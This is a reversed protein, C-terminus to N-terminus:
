RATWWTLTIGGFSHTAPGAAYEKSLTVVRYEIGVRAVRVGVGREWNGVRPRHDRRLSLRFTSGDLFLDRGVAEGNAGVFAFASFNHPTADVLWPHDLDFGVRLRGGAGAATRLTGLTAHATPVLDTWGAGAGPPALYWAQTFQVAMDPETPLQYKWGLLVREPSFDRHFGNQILEALSAPGTVGVTLALDRRMTRTAAVVDGRAYLWGAFSRQGPIPFSDDETPTFIEQGIELSSGCAPQRRCILRRAVAPVGFADWALRLGQTYNDDTPKFPGFSDNEEVLRGSRALAQGHSPWAVAVSLVLAIGISRMRM